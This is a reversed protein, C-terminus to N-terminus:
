HMWRPKIKLLCLTGDDNEYPDLMPNTFIVDENNDVLIMRIAVEREYVGVVRNMTTIIAAMAGEVTGGHFMTYEGTAGVALRYTRLTDGSPRGVVDALRQPPEDQEVAPEVFEENAEDQYDDRYYSMYNLADLSSYPDIYVSGAPSLILAHFGVPTRDFRVVASPDDIGQGLYTKILPFKAALGPQMIPSEQFRFRGWAGNPLPLTIQVGRNRDGLIELPASALLTDLATLNARVTRYALPVIQRPGRLQINTEAVDQWLGDPSVSAAVQPSQNSAWGLIIVILALVVLLRTSQHM